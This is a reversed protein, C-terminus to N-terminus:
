ASPAALADRLERHAAELEAGTSVPDTAPSPSGSRASLDARVEDTLHRLAAAARRAGAAMTLDPCTQALQGLETSCITARPELLEWAASARTLDGSAFAARSERELDAADTYVRTQWRRWRQRDRQRRVAWLVVAVVIVFGAIFLGRQARSPEAATAAAM